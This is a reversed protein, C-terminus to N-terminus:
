NKKMNSIHWSKNSVNDSKVLSIMVIQYSQNKTYVSEARFCM